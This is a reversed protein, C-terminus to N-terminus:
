ENARKESDAVSELQLALLPSRWAPELLQRQQEEALGAWIDLTAVSHEIAVAIEHVAYARLREAAAQDCAANARALEAHALANVAQAVEAIAQTREHEQKGKGTVLDIAKRIALEVAGDVLSIM